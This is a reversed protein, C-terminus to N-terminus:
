LPTSKSQNSAGKEAQQSVIKGQKRKMRSHSRTELSDLPIEKPSGLNAHWLNRQNALLSHTTKKRITAQDDLIQTM